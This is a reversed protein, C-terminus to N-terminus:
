DFVIKAPRGRHNLRDFFHQRPKVNRSGLDGKILELAASVSSGCISASKRLYRDGGAASGSKRLWYMTIRSGESVPPAHAGIAALDSFDVGM